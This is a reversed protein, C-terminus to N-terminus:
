IRRNQFLNENEKPDYGKCGICHHCDLSSTGYEFNELNADHALGNMIFEKSYPIETIRAFPMEPEKVLDFTVIELESVIKTAEVSDYKHGLEHECDDIKSLCVNCLGDFNGCEVGSYKKGTRHDCDIPDLGCISCTYKEFGRLSFGFDKHLLMNPCDTYYHGDKFKFECQYNKALFEGIQHMKRAISVREDKVVWFVNLLESLAERLDSEPNLSNNSKVLEILQYAHVWSDKAVKNPSVASSAMLIAKFAPEKDSSDM